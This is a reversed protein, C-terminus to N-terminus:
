GVVHDEVALTTPDPPDGLVAGLPQIREDFATPLKEARIAQRTTLAVPM